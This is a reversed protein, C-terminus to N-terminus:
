RTLDLADFDEGIFTPSSRAGTNGVLSSDGGVHDVLNPFHYAVSADPMVSGILMDAGHPESWNKLQSSALLAHVTSAPLTIAQNCSFERATGIMWMPKTQLPNPALQHFWSHMAIDDDYKVAAVYNLLHQVARLDDEFMTLRTFGPTEAAERLTEFFTRAQGIRRDIRASPHRVFWQYPITATNLRGDAMLVCRGRWVRADIADLTRALLEERGTCTMIALVHGWQRPGHTVPRFRAAQRRQDDLEFEDM